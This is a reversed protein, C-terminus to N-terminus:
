QPLFFFCGHMSYVTALVAATRLPGASNSPPHGHSSDHNEVAKQIPEAKRSDSVALYIIWFFLVVNQYLVRLPLPVWLYNIANVTPWLMAAKSQAHWQNQKVWEWSKKLSLGEVLKTYVLFVMLIPARYSIHDFPIKVAMNQPGHRALWNQWHHSGIPVGLGWVWFDFLKRISTIKGSKICQSIIQAVLFMLCSTSCKTKLPRRELAGIYSGWLALPGAVM